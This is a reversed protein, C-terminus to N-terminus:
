AASSNWALAAREYAGLLATLHAKPSFKAAVLRRGAQGMAELRTPDDLMKNLARALARSDGPPVRLGVTGDALWDGIGGTASAVVPRGAALAEIGILGFPEPWLSPVAVVAAAALEGSLADADLWGTFSVRASIGLEEAYARMAALRWGDGCIVLETDVETTARLLTDVGKVATIRGAFLVRRDDPYPAAAERDPLTAFLPVVARSSVGNNALHRDVSSSYAIVM